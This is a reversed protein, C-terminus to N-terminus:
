LNRCSSRGPSRAGAPEVFKRCHRVHTENQVGCSACAGRILTFLSVADQYWETLEASFIFDFFLALEVDPNTQLWLKLSVLHREGCYPDTIYGEDGGLWARLKALTFGHGRMHPPVKRLEVIIAGPIDRISYTHASSHVYWDGYMHDVARLVAALVDPQRAKACAAFLLAGSLVAQCGALLFAIM